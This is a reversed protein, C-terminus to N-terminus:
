KNTVIREYATPFANKLNNFREFYMGDLINATALQVVQSETVVSFIRHYKCTKIVKTDSEACMFMVWLDDAKLATKKILEADVLEKKVAGFPFLCGGGNSPLLKQSPEHLGINSITKWRGPNQMKGDDDYAMAQARNCVVCKPFKEHTKILKAISNPPYIIDDDFTIVLENEKQALLADYHKKHGYLNDAVFYIELGNETLDTLQQPLKHDPFQEESLWLVVRDPKYDQLILSKIAWHAYAIRAPFSTLSATVTEERPETNLMYGSLMEKQISKNDLKNLFQYWKGGFFPIRVSEPLKLRETFRRNM